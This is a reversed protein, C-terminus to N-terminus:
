EFISLVPEGSRRDQGVTAGIVELTVPEAVAATILFLCAAFTLQAAVTM